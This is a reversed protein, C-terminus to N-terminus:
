GRRRGVHPAQGAARVRDGKFTLVMPTGPSLVRYRKRDFETGHGRTWRLEIYAEVAAIVLSHTLYICRQTCGKTIAACLSVEARVKGSQLLVDSVLLRAIETVRMACTLGLLLVLADREPHRSSAATVRLLHRM